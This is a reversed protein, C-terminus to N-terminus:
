TKQSKTALLPRSPEGLMRAVMTSKLAEVAVGNHAAITMRPASTSPTSPVVTSQGISGEGLYLLVGTTEELYCVHIIICILFYFSRFKGHLAGGGRARRDSRVM